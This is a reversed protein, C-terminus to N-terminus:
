RMCTKLRKSTSVWTVSSEEWSSRIFRNLWCVSSVQGCCETGDSWISWWGSCKRSAELFSCWGASSEDGLILAFISSAQILLWSLSYFKFGTCLVRWVLLYHRFEDSLKSSLRLLTNDFVYSGTFWLSRWRSWTETNFYLLGMIIYYSFSPVWTSSSLSSITTRLWFM